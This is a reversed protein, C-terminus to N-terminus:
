GINGHVFRGGVITALCDIDPIQETAVATPDASLVAMDAYYGVALPGKRKEEFTLWAGDVTILRLAQEAALRGAPGLVAGTDREQRAVMSWLTFLPNYPVADTGASVPVGADLLQRAPVVYDRMQVSTDRYRNAVKWLHFAPILTVGLGLRAIRAVAEPSCAGVHELVWRRGAFPIKEAVRELCPLIQDVIDAAITHLRLNHRAALLALQVFEDPSVAQKVYGSWSIDSPDKRALEAIAPDGGFPVHVGSIRLMDDGVGAGQAYPLWDRYQREAEDISHLVPNVVLGVRMSLDGREALHRYQSILVPACGHGEYISTTGKAHYMPLALRIAQMRDEETFRPVVPMLDLLAAEPYNRDIIVGTPEGLGDHVIELNRARVRRHRDIGNQALAASNLVTYCPPQGWYGSPAAICVPNDPAAADLEYRTPMRQEALCSPGGFFFPPRGIPMTVIWEGPKRGAVLRRVADLVDAISHCHELSPRLKQLGVSDMHAHTDNFGPIVTSGSFDHLKTSPGRCADVQARSGVAIIRGDRIALAEARTGQADLTIINGFLITDAATFAPPM